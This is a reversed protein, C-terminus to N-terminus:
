RLSRLIATPPGPSCQLLIEMMVLQRHQMALFLPELHFHPHPEPSDRCCTTLIRPRRRHKLLSAGRELLVACVGLNDESLATLIPTMGTVAM